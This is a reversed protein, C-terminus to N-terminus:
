KDKNKEKNKWIRFSPSSDNHEPHPCHSQWVNAGAGKVEVHEKVLELLDTADKVKAIFSQSFM